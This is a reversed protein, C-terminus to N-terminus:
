RFTVTVADTLNSTALGAATTDRYWLQFGYTEGPGVARTGFSGGETWPFARLDPAFTTAGGAGAQVLDNVFRGYGSGAICLTGRSGQFDVVRDRGDGVMFLGFTAPPLGTARLTLDMAAVDYDSPSISELRARGAVSNPRGVCIVGGNAPTSEYILLEGPDRFFRGVLVEPLGDDDVDRLYRVHQGFFQSPDQLNSMLSGDAGSYILVAGNDGVLLDPYGDGDFDGREDLSTVSGIAWPPSLHEGIPTLDTGSLFVVGREAAPWNRRAAIDPVGDGNRDVVSALTHGLYQWQVTGERQALVAGSAGALIRINGPGNFNLALGHWSGVAIERVGDADVDHILALSLGMRENPGGDVRWLSQGTAGSFVFVSGRDADALAAGVVVDLVGDGDVDVPRALSTPFSEGNPPPPIELLVSGNLGSLVQVRSLAANPQYIQYGVLVDGLGDGDFDGAAEVILRGLGPPSPGIPHREFVVSRDRGSIVRIANGRRMSVVVDAIGDGDCDGIDEFHEGFYTTQGPGTVVDLLTIGQAAAAAHLVALPLLAAIRM